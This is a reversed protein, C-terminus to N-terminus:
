RNCLSKSALRTPQLVYPSFSNSTLSNLFANNMDHTDCKLIDINFDGMIACLKNESSIKQLLPEIYDHNFDQIYIKSTPHRYICGVVM